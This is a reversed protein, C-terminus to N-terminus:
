VRSFRRRENPHGCGPCRPLPEGMAAKFELACITCRIVDQFARRQRQQRRWEWLLWAGFVSGLIAALSIFILVSLSVQIM